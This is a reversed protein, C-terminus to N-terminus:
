VRAVVVEVVVHDGRAAVEPDPEDLVAETDVEKLSLPVHLLLTYEDLSTEASM